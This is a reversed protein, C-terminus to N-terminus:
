EDGLVEHQSMEECKCAIAEFRAKEEATMVGSPMRGTKKYAKIEEVLERLVARDADSMEEGKVKEVKKMMEESFSKGPNQLEWMIRHPDPPTPVPGNRGLMEGLLISKMKNFM